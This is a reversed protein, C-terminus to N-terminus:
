RNFVVTVVGNAGGFDYRVSLRSNNETAVGSFTDGYRTSTFTLAGADGAYTGNDNLTGTADEVHM